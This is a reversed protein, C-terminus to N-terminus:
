IDTIPNLRGTKKYEWLEEKIMGSEKIYQMAQEKEKLGKQRRIKIGAKKRASVAPILIPEEYIWSHIAGCIMGNFRQLISITHASSMNTKFVKAPEEVYVHTSVGTFFRSHTDNLFNEFRHLKEYINKEKKFDMYGIDVIEKEDNLFCYGICRTSCDIGLIM